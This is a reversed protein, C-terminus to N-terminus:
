TVEKLAFFVRGFDDVSFLYVDRVNAINRARLQQDLWQTDLGLVQLNKELVRGENVVIVPYGTEDVPLQLDKPTVPQHMSSLIPTIKGDTELIAYKVTSFDLVGKKRLQEALEDVTLRNKKMERQVIKGDKIIVCPKGCIFARFRVSKVIGFSILLECIVLTAAPVLGYILPTGIDQLPQAALESILVAVVLEAPELEGIQRKGMIRMSTIIAIYLILTRVISIAM